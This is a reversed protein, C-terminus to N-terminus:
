QTTGILSKGKLELKLVLKNTVGSKFNCRIHRDRFGKADQLPVQYQAHEVDFSRSIAPLNRVVAVGRQDTIASYSLEPLQEPHQFPEEHSRKTMGFIGTQIRIVNPSAHVRAGPIPKGSETVTTVELSATPETVVQVHTTPDNLPFAQPVGVVLPVLKGNIRNSPQGGNQSVFGRGHVIIDAEGAPISEFVFTGDEAIPRYSTWFRFNGFQSILDRNDEPVVFAPFEKPRVSIVARGDEVPRPVKNDLQGELRVGPKMELSFSYAKGKEAVFGIGESYVFEGTRLRGM